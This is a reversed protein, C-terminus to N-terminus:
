KVDDIAFDDILFQGYVNIQNNWKYKSTLALLANGTKSSSGFEVARYFILPNVFNFDFGRENTNTWVVNEFFGINLRKTANWSLYHSAMYKTAYTGDVTALDRVDKLWMYTNTYKIKWFTTNIKFFPYPSTGDGQLLSRYGDVLFNRGYGLQLNIFQSPTYKINAEAM